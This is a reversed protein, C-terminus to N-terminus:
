FMMIMLITVWLLQVLHLIISLLILDIIIQIINLRGQTIFFTKTSKKIIQIYITTLLNILILAFLVILNPLLIISMNFGIKAILLFMLFASIAIWRLKVFWLASVDPKNSDFKMKMCKRKWINIRGSVYPKIVFEILM